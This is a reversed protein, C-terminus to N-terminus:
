PKRARVAITCRGISVLNGDGDRVECQYVHTSRGQHVPKAEAVLSGETISKIHNANIAMGSLNHTEIDVAFAACLSAASEMMLVFFGGHVIGAHQFLRACVEVHVCARQADCEGLTMGLTGHITKPDMATLLQRLASENM